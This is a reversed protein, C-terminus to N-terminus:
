TTVRFIGSASWVISFSGSTVSQAGGFANFSLGQNAVTGATISSDYVLCGYTNSLTVTGGGATNSGTFQVYGVGNTVANGALARGGAVWNTADTVENGVVWQGVSYASNALTDDKNPTGTNNFLAVKIADAILSGFGTPNTAGLAKGLLPNVVAQTFVSSTTGFAM